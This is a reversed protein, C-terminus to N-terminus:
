SASQNKTPLLTDLTSLLDRPPYPKHIVVDVALPKTGLEVNGTLMLVKVDRIEKLRRGVEFGTTGPLGHDVIVLDISNNVFLSEAEEAASAILCNHGAFQLVLSLTQLTPLHDDICLITHM